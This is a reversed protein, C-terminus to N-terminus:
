DLSQLHAFLNVDSNTIGLKKRIRNRFTDVTRLSIQLMQAIEKSALGSRVMNCIEMERASLSLASGGLRAGFRSTLDRIGTELVDLHRKELPGARRKMKQLTPVLFKEANATVQRRIELKETEIQSLIEKLAANKEELAKKQERLTAAAESM